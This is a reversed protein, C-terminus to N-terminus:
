EQCQCENENMISTKKKERCSQCYGYFRITHADIEFDYKRALGDQVVALFQNEEECFNDYDM